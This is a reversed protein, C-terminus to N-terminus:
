RPVLMTRVRDIRKQAAELKDLRRKRDLERQEMIQLKSKLRENERKTAENPQGNSTELAKIKEKLAANERREAAVMDNAQQFLTTSLEELEANMEKTKREAEIRATQEKVLTAELEQERASPGSPPPTPALSPKRMFSGFRSLGIPPPNESEPTPPISATANHREQQDRM